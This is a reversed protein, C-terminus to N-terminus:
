QLEEKKLWEWTSPKFRVSDDWGVEARKGSIINWDRIEKMRGNNYRCAAHSTKARAEMGRHQVIEAERDMALEARYPNSGHFDDVIGAFKPDRVEGTIVDVAGRRARRENEPMKSERYDVMKKRERAEAEIRRAELEPTPMFDEVPGLKRTGAFKASATNREQREKVTVAYSSKKPVGSVIDFDGSEEYARPFGRQRRKDLTANDTDEREKRTAEHWHLIGLGHDHRPRVVRAPPKEERFISTDQYFGVDVKVDDPSPKHFRPPPDPFIGADKYIKQKPRVYFESTPPRNREAERQHLLEEWSEPEKATEVM